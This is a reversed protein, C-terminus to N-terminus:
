GQLASSAESTELKVEAKKRKAEIALERYISNIKEDSLDGIERAELQVRDFQFAQISDFVTKNATIKENTYQPWLHRDPIMWIVRVSDGGPTCKFLMSNTQAKPKTLRPQWLLRKTVGDDDTRTHAFIYFPYEGFPRQDILNQCCEGIDFSQKVFHQLRDHTELRNLKM